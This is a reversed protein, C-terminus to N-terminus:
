CDAEWWKGDPGCHKKNMRLLQCFGSDHAGTVLNTPLTLVNLHGCQALSLLSCGMVIWKCSACTRIELKILKESRFPWVM